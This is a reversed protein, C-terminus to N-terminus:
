VDRGWAEILKEAAEDSIPPGVSDLSLEYKINSIGRLATPHLRAARIGPFDDDVIWWRTSSIAFRTDFPLPADYLYGADRIKTLLAAAPFKKELLLTIRENLTPAKRDRRLRLVVLSLEALDLPDLQEVNSIHIRNGELSKTSKVEIARASSSYFDHPHGSPGWWSDIAAEIGIRESLLELVHLEGILGVLQELTPGTSETRFLDRWEKLAAPLAREPQAGAQVRAVVDAVLREFVLSLRADLCKLDAFRVNDGGVDLVRSGLRLAASQHGAQIEDPAEVLLHRFRDRDLGVRVESDGRHVLRTALESGTPAPGSELLLYEAAVNVTM